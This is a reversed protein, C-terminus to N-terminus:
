PGERGKLGSHREGGLDRTCEPPYGWGGVEWPQRIGNKRRARLTEIRKRWGIMDGGGKKRDVKGGPDREGEGM